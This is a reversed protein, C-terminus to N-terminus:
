GLKRGFDEFFSNCIRGFMGKQASYDNRDRVDKRAFVLRHNRAEFVQMSVQVTSVDVRRPPYTVPVQIYRTEEHRRGHHDYYTYTERKSEWVTREPEIYYNNEWAEVNAFVGADAIRYANDEVIKRARQPNSYAMSELDMGLEYGLARRADSESMVNCRLHKRANEFFTDQMNRLAISGGYDARRDATVDFVIVTRINRFYFNRDFWDTKEASVNQPLTMIALLLIVGFFKKMLM